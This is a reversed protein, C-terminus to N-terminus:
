LYEPYWVQLNNDYIVIKEFNFKVCSINKADVNILKNGIPTWNTGDYQELSKNEVNWIITGEELKSLLRKLM